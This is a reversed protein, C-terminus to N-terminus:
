QGAAPFLPVNYLCENLFIVDCCINQANHLAKIGAAASPVVAVAIIAVAVADDDDDVIAAATAVVGDVGVSVVGTDCWYSM